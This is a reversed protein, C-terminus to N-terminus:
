RAVAEPTSASAALRRNRVSELLAVIGVAALLALSPEAAARFRTQGYTIIAGITVVIPAAGLVWLSLRTRRRWLVVAGGIAFLLTPYYAVLGLRTVWRERDEGSNFAVMDLPRFLSWERGVRALIVVPLRGEHHEIYNFARHRYASSVQSQDGPLNLSGTCSGLTWLGIGSGYYTANCNAGALTIGDNTSIFTPDKFRVFNFGVWPAMVLLAALVAATALGLRDRWPTRLACPVLVALLVVFLVFEVRALAALGCLVGLAVARRRTPRDWFAFAFWLAAVVALGTVTESMVLGDNVWLNPTVAAIAAAVLGVTEGGVRRGLLGVLAVLATGLVVMTYRDERVRDQLPENIVWSLPPREALWAVPTLVLVTLPPHDAAPRHKANPEFVAGYPENFGHGDAVFNAEANYFLEDGQLCKSPESGIERGSSDRQICPGAKAIAVYSVRVGFAVAVIALLLWAFRSRKATLPALAGQAGPGPAGVV